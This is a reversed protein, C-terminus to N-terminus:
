KWANAKSDYQDAFHQFLDHTVHLIHVQGNGKSPALKKVAKELDRLKTRSVRAENLQQSVPERLRRASRNLEEVVGLGNDAHKSLDTEILEVIRIALAKDKFPLTLAGEKRFLLFLWVFLGVTILLEM